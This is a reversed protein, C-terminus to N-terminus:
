SPRYKSTILFVWPNRLRFSITGLRKPSVTVLHLNKKLYPQIELFFRKKEPFGNAVDEDNIYSLSDDIFYSGFYAMSPLVPFPFSIKLDM